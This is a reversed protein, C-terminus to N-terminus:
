IAKTGARRASIFFSNESSLVKQLTIMSNPIKLMANTQPLKKVKKACNQILLLCLEIFLFVHTATKAEAASTISLFYELIELIM